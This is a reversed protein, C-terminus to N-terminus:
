QPEFHSCRAKDGEAEEEALPVQREAGAPVWHWCWNLDRGSMMQNLLQTWEAQAIRGPSTQALQENVEASSLPVEAVV